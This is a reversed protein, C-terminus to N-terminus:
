YLMMLLCLTVMNQPQYFGRFMQYTLFMQNEELFSFGFLHLREGHTMHNYL